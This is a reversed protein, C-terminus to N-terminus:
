NKIRKKGQGEYGQGYGEYGEYGEYDEYGQGEYGSVYKMRHADSSSRTSKFQCWFPPSTCLGAHAFIQWIRVGM